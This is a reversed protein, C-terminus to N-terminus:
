RLDRRFLGHRNCYYYLAKIGGRRFRAEAGWEPYLKIFECGDDKVAALFSIYHTRSM